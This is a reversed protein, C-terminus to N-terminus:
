FVAHEFFMVICVQAPTMFVDARLMNGVCGTKNKQVNTKLETRTSKPKTRDGGGAQHQRNARIHEGTGHRVKMVGLPILVRSWVTRNKPKHFSISSKSRNM